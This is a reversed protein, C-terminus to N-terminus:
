ENDMGGIMDYIHQLEDIPAKATLAAFLGTFHENLQERMHCHLQEIITNWQKTYHTLLRQKQEAVYAAIPEHLQKELEEKMFRKEDKEFFSKANKYLSLAKKFINRDIQEFAIPFQLTPFSSLDVKTVILDHVQKWQNELAMFHLDYRKNIFAEIRLSTARM